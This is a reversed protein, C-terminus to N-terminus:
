KCKEQLTPDSGPKVGTNYMGTLRAILIAVYFVAVLQEIIVFSRARMTIPVIDGYGM